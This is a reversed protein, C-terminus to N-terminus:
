ILVGQYDNIMPDHLEDNKLFFESCDNGIEMKLASLSLRPMKFKMAEFLAPRTEMVVCALCPNIFYIVGLIVSFM